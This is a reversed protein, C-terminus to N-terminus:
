VLFPSRGRTKRPEQVWWRMAIWAVVSVASSVAFLLTYHIGALWTALLPGAISALGVASNAIGAYTPRREPGSFELLVLIGSVVISGAAIGQLLFVLYYWGPGPALWAVAYALAYAAAAWELSLKHGFRDALLGFGLNGTTQGALFAGTYLAVTSDDVGWRRVAAVTVFGSGMAGLAVLLRAALFRRFHTDKRVLGPISALFERQKQHQGRVPEAPERVLMEFCWGVLICTAGLAFVIVFSKPFAYARLLWGTLASAAIGLGTGVSCTVGWYRGRREVPIVRAILDQWAPGIAGGGLARWALAILFLALALAPSRAAILAALVVGWIGLREVVLGVHVAMPKRRPLRETWNATFIQPLFWGASTVMAAIGIPVQSSTLKSIFLPVITSSSIFSIAVWFLVGDVLTVAFNWPYNRRVMEALDQESHEPVPRDLELVRRVFRKLAPPHEDTLSM